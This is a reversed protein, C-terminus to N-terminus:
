PSASPGRGPSVRLTPITLKISNPEEEIKIDQEEKPGQLVFPQSQHGSKDQFIKLVEKM